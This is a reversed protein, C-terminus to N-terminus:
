LLFAVRHWSLAHVGSYTLWIEFKNRAAPDYKKAARIDARLRKFM